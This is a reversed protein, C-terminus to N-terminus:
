RRDPAPKPKAKGVPRLQLRRKMEEAIEARSPQFVGKRPRGSDNRDGADGPM